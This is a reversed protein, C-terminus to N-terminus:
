CLNGQKRKGRIVLEAGRKPETLRAEFFRSDMSLQTAFVLVHLTQYCEKCELAVYAIAVFMLFVNRGGLM